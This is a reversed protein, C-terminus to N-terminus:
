ITFYIKIVRYKNTIINKLEVGKEPESQVEVASMDKLIQKILEIKNEFKNEYQPYKKLLDPLENKELNLYLITLKQKHGNTILHAKHHSIQESHKQCIECNYEKGM